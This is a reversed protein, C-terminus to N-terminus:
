PDQIEAPLEYARLISEKLVVYQLSEELSLSSVVEQAQRGVQLSTLHAM